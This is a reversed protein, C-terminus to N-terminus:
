DGARQTGARLKVAVGAVHTKTRPVICGRSIRCAGFRLRQRARSPQQDTQGPGNRRRVRRGRHRGGHVATDMRKAIDLDQTFGHVQAFGRGSTHSQAGHTHAQAHRGGIDAAAHRHVRVGGDVRVRETHPGLGAVGGVGLGKRQGAAQKGSADVVGRGVHVVGHAGLQTGASQHGGVVVHLHLGFGSINAQSGAVAHRHGANRHTAHDGLHVNAPAITHVLHHSRNIGTGPDSVRAEDGHGGQVVVRAIGIALRGAAAQDAHGACQSSDGAVLTGLDVDARAGEDGCFRHRQLRDVLLVQVDLGLRQSKAQGRAGTRQAIHRGGTIRTHGNAGGGLDGRDVDRHSGFVDELLVMKVDVQLRGRHRQAAGRREDTLGPDANIATVREVGVDGHAATGLQQRHAIRGIRAHELQLSEGVHLREVLDLGLGIATKTKCQAGRVHRDLRTGPDVHQTARDLAIGAIDVNRGAGIVIHTGVGVGGNRHREGPHAARDAVAGNVGAVLDRQVIRQNAAAVDVQPGPAVRGALDVDDVGVGIGVNLGVRQQWGDTHRHAVHDDALVVGDCDVARGLHLRQLVCRQAGDLTDAAVLAAGLRAAHQRERGHGIAKFHSVARVGVADVGHGNGAGGLHLGADVVLRHQM